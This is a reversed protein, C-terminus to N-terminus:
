DPLTKIWDCSFSVAEPNTYVAHAMPPPHSASFTSGPTSLLRIEWKGLPTPEAALDLFLNVVALHVGLPVVLVLSLLLVVIWMGSSLIVMLWNKVDERIEQSLLILTFIIALLVYSPVIPHLRNAVATVIVVLIAFLRFTQFQRLVYALHNDIRMLGAKGLFYTQVTAYSLFKAVSLALSAEDGPSRILLLRASKLSPLAMQAATEKAVRQLRRLVTDFLVVVLVLLAIGIVVFPILTSWNSIYEIAIWIFPAMFLIMPTAMIVNEDTRDLSRESAVFFPTALCVVGAVAQRLEPDRLAYLAINGGHSHCVLILKANPNLAQERLKAGLQLSAQHRSPHNNRGSWNFTDIETDPGLHERISEAFPSNSQCWTAKRAWTGHIITVIYPM